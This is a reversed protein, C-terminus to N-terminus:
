IWGGNESPILEFKEFKLVEMRRPIKRPSTKSFSWGSEDRTKTPSSAPIRKRLM